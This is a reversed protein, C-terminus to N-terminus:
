TFISSWCRKLFILSSFMTYIVCTEFDLHQNTLPNTSRTYLFFFNKKKKVRFERSARAATTIDMTMVPNPLNKELNFFYVDHLFWPHKMNNKFLLFKFRCECVYYDWITEKLKEAAKKYLRDEKRGPPPTWEIEKERERERDIGGM